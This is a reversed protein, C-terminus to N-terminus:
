CKSPTWIPEPLNQFTQHLTPKKPRDLRERPPWIRFPRDLRGQYHSSTKARQQMGMNCQQMQEPPTHNPELPAQM